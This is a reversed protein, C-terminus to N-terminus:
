LLFPTAGGKTQEKSGLWWMGPNRGWVPPLQSGWYISVKGGKKVLHSFQCVRKGKVMFTDWSQSYIPDPTQHTCLLTPMVLETLFWCWSQVGAHLTGSLTSHPVWLPFCRCQCIRSFLGKKTTLGYCKCIVYINQMIIKWDTSAFYVFHRTM